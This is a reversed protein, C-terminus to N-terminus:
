RRGRRKVPKPPKVSIVIGELDFKVVIMKFRNTWYVWRNGDLSPTQHASPYGFALHVGQKSMGPFVKGERVGKQDLESLMEVAVEDPGTLISLYDRVSMRMNAKNFEYCIRKGTNAEILLFGRDWRGIRVPTNVPVVFHGPGPDTWNAYSARCKGGGKQWGHVNSQLYIAPRSPDSRAADQSGGSSCGLMLAQGAVCVGLMIWKVTRQM